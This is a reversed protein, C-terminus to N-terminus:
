TEDKKIQLLAEAFSEAFFFKIDLDEYMQILQAKSITYSINELYVISDSVFNTTKRWKLHDRLMQEVSPMLLTENRLLAIHRWPAGNFQDVIDKVEEIYRKITPENWPGEADTLVICNEIVELTFSGHEQKM